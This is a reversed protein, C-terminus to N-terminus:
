MLEKAENGRSTWAKGVKKNREIRVKSNKSCSLYIRAKPVKCQSNEKDPANNGLLRWALKRVEIM